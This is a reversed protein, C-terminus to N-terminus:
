YVQKASDAGSNSQRSMCRILKVINAPSSITLAEAVATLYLERAESYRGQQQLRNALSMRETWADQGVAILATVFTLFAQKKM